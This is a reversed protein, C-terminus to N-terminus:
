HPQVQIGELLSMLRDHAEQDSVQDPTIWEMFLEDKPLNRKVWEHFVEEHTGIAIRQDGCYAVQKGRHKELLDPLDRLFARRATERLTMSTDCGEKATNPPTGTEGPYAPDTPRGFSKLAQRFRALVTM